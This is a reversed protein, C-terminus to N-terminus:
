DGSICEYQVKCMDYLHLKSIIAIEDGRLCKQKLADM